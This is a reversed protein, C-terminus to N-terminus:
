KLPTYGSHTATLSWPSSTTGNFKYTIGATVRDANIADKAILLMNEPMYEDHRYETRLFINNTVAYEAGAGYTIGNLNNLNTYPVNSSYSGMTYGVKGYLLVNPAVVYGVRGGVAWSGDAHVKVGGLNVKGEELNGELWAGLLINSLVYDYGATASGTYGNTGLTGVSHGSSSINHYDFLGGFGLGGYVGQWINVSPTDKYTQAALSGSMLALFASALIARKM